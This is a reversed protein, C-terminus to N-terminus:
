VLESSEPPSVATRRRATNSRTSFFDLGKERKRLRYVSRKSLEVGSNGKPSNQNLRGRMRLRQDGRRLSQRSGAGLLHHEAENEIAQKFMELDEDMPSTFPHHAADYNGTEDNLEFMPFETVLLPKYLTKIL